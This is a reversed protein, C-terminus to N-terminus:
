KQKRKKKAQETEYRKFTEAVGAPWV